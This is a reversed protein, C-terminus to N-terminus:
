VGEGKAQVSELPAVIMNSLLEKRSLTPVMDELPKGYEIRPMIKQNDPIIIECLVPGKHLLTERIKKRLEKHNRISVTKIGYANGLKIFDPTSYGKGTAEFRSGLWTEQFQKIIGYGHNNMVFIKIPLNQYKLTQLEQINIQLSGDGDICIIEKKGLAISAGISAPFAYGMPSNGFASFLRQGKKLAFGQMTWSLNGGDDPIIIADADLEESLTKIFVYGDVVDKRNYYEKKVTPYKERWEDCRKRWALTDTKGLFKAQLIFLKLFVKADAKIAIDPTLGRRKNLERQDIDVMIKKAERAFTQPKGGTQRTDLRSGISFLLDANQVAFNAARDGYVGVTGIRRPYSFPFLDFGSWSTVVPIKLINALTIIEREAKAIRIGGGALLVPRKALKLLAICKLIDGKEVFSNKNEAPSTFGRLTKPDIEVRQFNQPIDLVVPGPRGSKAIYIAKELIYRINEPADLQVAFKTIPKVIDVIDTEQFGIQRVGTNGKQEFTNVQGTIHLTPISDFWSCCIGTILNTAGPGSTVMTAAIGPGLRSYADAAMAAAQEHAVCVYEIDKRGHFADVVFAIAGGTLLFVHKIGISVLYDLIYDAVRM